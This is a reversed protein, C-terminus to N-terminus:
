IIGILWLYVAAFPLAFIFADFRDLFGGHGPLLNGSDKINYSRKLMSEVLDGVTGFVAAILALVMWQMPEIPTLGYKASLLGLGWGALMCMLWGGVSGEWTKKPSIREFLKTRGIQSGIFYAFVDNAWILIFIGLVIFPNFKYGDDVYNIWAVRPMLAMPFGIYIAGMLANAVADFPRPQNGFLEYLLLGFILVFGCAILSVPTINLMEGGLDSTLTLVIGLWYAMIGPVTSLSRRLMSGFASSGTPTTIQSFEWLMLTNVLMFVFLYSYLSYLMGGILCIGFILGTIIRTRM